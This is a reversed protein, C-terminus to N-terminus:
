AGFGAANVAAKYAAADFDDTHTVVVYGGEHNANVFRVGAVNSTAEVLRDGDQKSTMGSVDIKSQAMKNVECIHKVFFCHQEGLWGVVGVQRMRGM